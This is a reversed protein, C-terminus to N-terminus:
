GRVPEPYRVGRSVAYGYPHHFVDLASDSDVDLEFSDGNRTDTVSVWLRNTLKSWLLAVEIGDAARYDLELPLLDQPAITDAGETHM